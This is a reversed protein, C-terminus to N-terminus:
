APPLGVGPRLAPTGSVLAHVRGDGRHPGHVPHPRSGAEPPDPHLVARHAGEAGRGPRDHRRRRHVAGQVVGPRWLSPRRPDLGLRLARPALESAPDRDPAAEKFPRIADVITQAKKTEKYVSRLRHAEDVVVLDWPLAQVLAAQRYVYEYSAIVAAEGAADFPNAVVKAAKREVINSPIHFKSALELQWQKRLTAPVILLVRRRRQAWRQAIM